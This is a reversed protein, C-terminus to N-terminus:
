YVAFVHLVQITLIRRENLDHMSTSVYMLADFPLNHKQRLMLLVGAEWERDTLDAVTIEAKTNSDELGDVIGANGGPRGTCRVPVIQWVPSSGSDTTSQNRGCWLVNLTKEFKARLFFSLLLLFKNRDVKCEIQRVRSVCKRGTTM